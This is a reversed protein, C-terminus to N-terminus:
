AGPAANSSGSADFTVAVTDSPAVDYVDNDTRLQAEVVTDYIGLPVPTCTGFASWDAYVEGPVIETDQVRLRVQYAMENRTLGELDTLWDLTFTPSATQAFLKVVTGDTEELRWQYMTIADGNDGHDEDNPDYSASADLVLDDGTAVFYAGVTGPLDQDVHPVAVPLDDGEVVRIEIPLDLYDYRAPSNNDAVRLMADYVGFQTYGSYDALAGTYGPTANFTGDYDFDWQYSAIARNDGAPWAHADTGVHLHNPLDVPNRDHWSATGDFSVMLGPAINSPLAEAVAHPQNEHIFLRATAPDSEAGLSDTVVLTVTTLAYGTGSAPININALASLQSWNLDVHKGEADYTGDGDIDWQWRVVSDGRDIDTQNNTSKSGDLYLGQGVNITYDPYAVSQTADATPKTNGDTVDVLQTYIDTKAPVNSDTVRLVARYTGYKDYTWSATTNEVWVSNVEDWIWADQTVDAQFSDHYDFDWEYKVLLKDFGDGTDLHLERDHSSNEADFVIPTGPVYSQPTLDTDDVTIFEAHPENDFIFLKTTVIDSVAGFSDVVRLSVLLGEKPRPQPVKFVDDWPWEVVYEPDQWTIDADFTAPDLGDWDFDWQYEVITDVPGDPDTPDDATSASADLPLNENTNIWYPGGPNALPLRNLVVEYDEVEGNLALGDFSLDQDTSLRFRMFTKGPDADEPVLFQVTRTGDPNPTIQNVDVFTDGSLTSGDGWQIADAGGVDWGETGDRKGYYDIWGKLYAPGTLNTVTIDFSTWYGPVLIAGTTDVGDEDDNESDEVLTAELLSGNNAQEDNILTLLDSVKTEGAEFVVTLTNEGVDWTAEAPDGANDVYQFVVKVDNEGNPAGISFDNSLGPIVFPSIIAPATGLVGGATVYPNLPDTILDGVGITGSGDNNALNLDDGTADDSPQGDYDHDVLVGLRPGAIVHRAGDTANLTSYSGLADGYDVSLVDVTFDEVEGSYAVGTPGPTWSDGVSVVRFRAAVTEPAEDVLPVDFTKTVTGLTALDAPDVTVGQVVYEGADDFDGDDNFDIWGYVVGVANSVTFEVTAVEGPILEASGHGNDFVYQAEDEDDTDGTNDDDFVGDAPVPLDHDPETDGLWPGDTVLTFVHPATGYGAADGHDVKQVYGVYDEVEGDLALGDFSLDQDTSLRFRLFTKGGEADEPVLFHVTRTGDPNQAILNMDVFTEGSLVSGDGWQIADNVDEFWDGDHNYDVWGKLYTSDGVTMGTVTVDLAVWEGPVLIASAIDLGDEDDNDPDDISTAELPSSGTIHEDNIEALLDNVVTVDEEFTVTLINDVGNWSASAATGAEFVVTFDEGSLDDTRYIWFDNNLGTLAFPGVEDPDVYPSPTGTVIEGIPIVGSGDNSPNLDDGDADSSPVVTLDHDALVGLVPGAILHRAGGVARSTSYSDPADGFDVGWVEILYDEVEGSMALGSAKLDGGTADKGDSTVRFRAYTEGPVVNFPVTRTFSNLQEQIDYLPEATFIREESGPSDDFEGDRNFDIWADLFGPWQGDALDGSFGDLNTNSVNSLGDNDPDDELDLEAVFLDTANISDVIQATTTGNNYEVTLTGAGSDYTAIPLGNTDVIPVIELPLDGVVDARFPVDATNIAAVLEAATTVGPEFTLILTDVDNWSASPSGASHIVTLTFDGATGVTDATVVLDNDYGVSQLVGTTAYDIDSDAGYGTSAAPRNVTGTGSGAPTNSVLSATLPVGQNLAADNVADVLQKSTTVDPQFAIELTRTALTWTVVPDADVSHTFQLTFNGAADVFDTATVVFDNDYGSPAITGTSTFTGAPGETAAIVHGDPFDAAPLTGTGITATETVTSALLDTTEANIADVLQQATTVGPLFQIDLVRTAGDWTVSPLSDTGHTFRMQFNGAEDALDAASVVIDNSFGDSAITGTTAYTGAAVDDPDVVDIVHGDPFTSAPVSGKNITAALEQLTTSDPIFGIALTDTASDWSATAPGNPSTLHNYQVTLSQDGNEVARVVFANNSGDPDIQVTTAPNSGDGFGTVDERGNSVDTASITGTGNNPLSAVQFFSVETGNLTDGYGAARVIFPDVFGPVPNVSLLARGDFDDRHMSVEITADEGPVFGGPGFTVGGEDDYGDLDDGEALADPMGNVDHDVFFARPEGQLVGGLWPGGIVHRAGGAGIVNGYMDRELTTGYTDASDVLPADGYDVSRITVKYDEVEGDLALGGTGLLGGDADVGNSTVRFRAYSDAPKANEPVFFSQNASGTDVILNTFIREYAGDILFKAGDHVAEEENLPDVGLVGEGVNPDAVLRARLPSGANNIRAVIEEVPTVGAVYAVSLTDAGNWSVSARTTDEYFAVFKKNHDPSNDFGYIELANKIGPPNIIGTTAPAANNGGDTM